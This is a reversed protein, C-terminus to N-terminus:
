NILLQISHIYNKLEYDLISYIYRNAEIKKKSKLEFSKIKIKLHYKKPDFNKNRKHLFSKDEVFINECKIKNYIKKKIQEILDNIKM